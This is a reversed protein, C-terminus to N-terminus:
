PLRCSVQVRGLEHDQMFLRACNVTAARVLEQLPEIAPLCAPVTPPASAASSRAKLALHM